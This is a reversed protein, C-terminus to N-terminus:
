SQQSYSLASFGNTNVVPVGKVKEWKGDTKMGATKVENKVLQVMEEGDEESDKVVKVVCTFGHFLKLLVYIVVSLGMFFLPWKYEEVEFIYVGTFIMGPFVGCFLGRVLLETSGRPAKGLFRVSLIAILYALTLAMIVIPLAYTEGNIDKRETCTHTVTNGNVHPKACVYENRMFLSEIPVDTWMAFIGSITAALGVLVIPALLLQYLKEKSHM